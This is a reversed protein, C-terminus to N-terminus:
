KRYRKHHTKYINKVMKSYRNKKKQNILSEVENYTLRGQSVIFGRHVKTEKIRGNTNLEIEVILCARKKFPVLSCLNNSLKEPFMPIVRDPFYFSNGRKKAEIDLPDNKSVYFSVDAIAVMVKSGNESFNAWVADDFDRSDEGDVTVFPIHTFDEHNKFDKLSINSSYELVKKPFSQRLSNEKIEKEIISTLSITEKNLNKRRRKKKM